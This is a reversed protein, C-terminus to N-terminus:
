PRVTAAQRSPTLAIADAVLRAVGELDNRRDLAAGFRAVVFRAV